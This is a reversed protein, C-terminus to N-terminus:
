EEEALQKALKAMHRSMSANKTKAGLAEIKELIKAHRKKEIAIIGNLGKEKFEQTDDYSMFSIVSNAAIDDLWSEVLKNDNVVTTRYLKGNVEYLLEYRTKGYEESITSVM